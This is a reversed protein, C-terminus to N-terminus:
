KLLKDGTMVGPAVQPDRDDPASSRSGGAAEKKFDSGKNKKINRGYDDGLM